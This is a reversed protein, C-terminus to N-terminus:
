ETSPEGPLPLQGGDYVLLGDRLRAADMPHHDQLRGDPMVHQVSVGRALAAFDAIMRRHCRWWLAEACLVATPIRAAGDLLGDVATRFEASRMYAAYGAFSRNRLAIDPSDPSDKRWGGLRQEWRYAIAHEPMWRAMAGRAADPNRRSGPATRVDVVTEIGTGRLLHVLQERDATGHGLTFLPM